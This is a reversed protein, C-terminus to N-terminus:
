GQFVETYVAESPNRGTGLTFVEVSSATSPNLARMGVIHLCCGQHSWCLEKEQKGIISGLM